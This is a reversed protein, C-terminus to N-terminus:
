RDTERETERGGERAKEGRETETERERDRDTQRDTLREGRGARERTYAGAKQSRVRRYARARTIHLNNIVTLM